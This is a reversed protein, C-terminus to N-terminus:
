GCAETVSVSALLGVPRIKAPLPTIAYTGLSKGSPGKM